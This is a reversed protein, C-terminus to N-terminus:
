GKQKIENLLGWKKKANGIALTPSEGKAEVGNYIAKYGIKLAIVEIEENM